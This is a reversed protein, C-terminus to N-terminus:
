GGLEPQLISVPCFEHNGTERCRILKRARRYMKRKAEDAGHIDGVGCYLRYTYILGNTEHIEAGTSVRQLAMIAQQDPEIPSQAISNKNFVEISIVPAMGIYIEKVKLVQDNRLM